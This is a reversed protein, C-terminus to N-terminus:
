LDRFISATKSKELKALVTGIDSISKTGGRLWECVEDEFDRKVILKGTFNERMEGLEGSLRKGRFKAYKHIATNM